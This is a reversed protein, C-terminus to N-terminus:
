PAASGCEPCKAGAALRARDYHCKPCLKLRARRRALVDLRWAGTTCLLCALAPLWLPIYLATLSGATRRAMFWRLSAHPQIAYQWGPPRNPLVTTVTPDRIVVLIGADVQVSTNVSRWLCRVWGSGIWVVVLLLTVAAGGWKITKRIRPHPKM